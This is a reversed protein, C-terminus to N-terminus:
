GHSPSSNSASFREAMVRCLIFFLYEIPICPSLFYMRLFISLYFAFLLSWCNIGTIHVCHLIVFFCKIFVILYLWLLLGKDYPQWRSKRWNLDIYGFRPQFSLFGPKKKYLSHNAKMAETIPYLSSSWSPSLEHYDDISSTSRVEVCVVMEAM